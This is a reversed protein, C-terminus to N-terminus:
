FFESFQGFNRSIASFNWFTENPSFKCTSNKIVVKFGTVVVPEVLISTALM